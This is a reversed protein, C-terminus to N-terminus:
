LWQHQEALVLPQGGDILSRCYGELIAECSAHQSISLAKVRRALLASTALRVLDNVYPLRTAEDFDNIGWVLRGEADRWTGFNEVHVDGVGLLVPATRFEANVQPWLQAWRYFTARLFAFCDAAM